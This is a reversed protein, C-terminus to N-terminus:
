EKTWGLLADMEDISVPKGRAVTEGDTPPPTAGPRPIPTPKKAM